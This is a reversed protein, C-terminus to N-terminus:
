TGRLMMLYCHHDLLWSRFSKQDRTILLIQSVECEKGCVYETSVRWQLLELQNNKAPEVNHM